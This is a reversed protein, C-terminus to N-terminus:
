PSTVRYFGSSGGVEVPIVEPLGSLTGSRILSWAPSSLSPSWEVRVSRGAEGTVTLRLAGPPGSLSVTPVTPAVPQPDSLDPIGNANADNLDVVFVDWADFEDQFPTAPQGDLLFLSGAYWPRSAIRDLFLEVGEVDRSGLVEFDVGGAAIWHTNVRELTRADRVILPMPGEFHGSGGLRPLQVRAEVRTTGVAAPTYTLSGRYHLVEFRHLFELDTGAEFPSPMRLTLTGEASGAMRNWRAAVPEVGLGVDVTGQTTASVAQDVELFDTIFNLNLDGAKPIDVEIVGIWELGLEVSRIRINSTYGLTGNYPFWEGNISRFEGLDNIDTTFEGICDSANGGSPDPVAQAPRVVFSQCVLNMAAENGELVRPLWLGLACLVVGIRRMSGVSGPSVRPDVVPDATSGNGMTGCCRSKGPPNHLARRLRAAALRGPPQGSGVSLGEEATSRVGSPVQGLGAECRAPYTSDCGTICPVADGVVTL